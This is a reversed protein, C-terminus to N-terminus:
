LNIKSKIVVNLEIKSDSYLSAVGTGGSPSNITGSFVIGNAKRLNKMELEDLTLTQSSQTPTITGTGSVQAATLIKLKKTFGYQNKSITDVFLLQVEVDLPIGNKSNIILDAREIDNFDEGSIGTTDKFTLNSVQLEIPLEMAVDLAFTADLDLFNPNQPTVVNTKNFDAKGSYSINGTPPLAVFSVINSNQKDFVMSGTAIGANINAPVPIDYLAPNRTLTVQQGTKNSSKLDLAVTAPMGISNRFILEMKPNSLKFNGDIKDLMDVNLDFTGPDIQITQKGFDGHVSKFDLGTITMDVKIVDASNYDIYSGSNNAQITYSYPVHNYPVQPDSAFNFDANALDVTVSSGNLPISATIPVGNKKIEPLTLNIAGSVKSTNSAKINMTGKKLITSYAKLDPEPFVFSVTGSSGGMTQSNIKLNGKSITANALDFNLKFLDLPNIFVPTASGPTDFTLMRFEVQNSIQIGALDLSVKSIANPAINSFTFDDKIKRGYGLDFLSGKVTIPVKLKNEMTIELIGKNLTINTFDPIQDLKFSVYPGSYSFAPFPVTLGNYPEVNILGGGLLTVLDSLSINCGVSISNVSINGIPKDGSTFSQQIPLTLLDRVNYKFINNERYMIKILGNADKTLLDANEKNISQMLDWVSINAKAIPAVIEPSVNVKDSLKDFDLGDM